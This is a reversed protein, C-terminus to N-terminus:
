RSDLNYHEQWEMAALEAKRKTGATFSKYRRKSGPDKGAYALVRWQGSPLKKAKAMKISGKM